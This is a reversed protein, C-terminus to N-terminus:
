LGTVVQIPPNLAAFATKVTSATHGTGYTLGVDSVLAPGRALMIANADVGASLVMDSSLGLGDAFLVGAPTNSGDGAASLSIKYKGSATIKGLVTGNKYTGGAADNLVIAERTYGLAPEFEFKLWNSLRPTDTFIVPM